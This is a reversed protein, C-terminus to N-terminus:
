RPPTFNMHIEYVGEVVVGDVVLPEFRYRMAIARAADYLRPDCNSVEASFPVGEHDFRVETVCKRDAIPVEGLFAPADKARAIPRRRVVPEPPEPTAPAAQSAPLTGVAEPEEAFVLAVALFVSM